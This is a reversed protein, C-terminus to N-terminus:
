LEILCVKDRIQNSDSQDVGLVLHKSLGYLSLIILYFVLHLHYNIQSIRPHNLGVSPFILQLQNHTILLQLVTNPPFNSIGLNIEAIRHIGWRGSIEGIMGLGNNLRCRGTNSHIRRLSKSRKNNDDTYQKKRDEQISKNM